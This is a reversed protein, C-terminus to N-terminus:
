LEDESIILEEEESDDDDSADPDDYDDPDLGDELEGGARGSAEAMRRALEEDLTYPDEYRAAFPDPNVGREQVRRPYPARPEEEGEGIFELLLFRRLKLNFFYHLSCEGREVLTELTIGDITGCGFDFLGYRRKAGDEPLGEFLIMQDPAFDLDYQLFIHLEYLSMEPKFEYERLFHRSETLTAKFRYIM